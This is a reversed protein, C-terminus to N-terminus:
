GDVETRVKALSETGIRQDVIFPQYRSDRRGVDRAAKVSSIGAGHGRCHIRGDSMAHADSGMRAVPVQTTEAAAMHLHRAIFYGAVEKVLHARKPVELAAM